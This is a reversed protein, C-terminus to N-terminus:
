HRKPRKGGSDKQAAARKMTPPSSKSGTGDQEGEGPPPAEGSSQPEMDMSAMIAAGLPPGILAQHRRVLDACEEPTVEPHYYRMAAWLLTRSTGLKAPKKAQSRAHLEAVTEIWAEGTVGEVAIWAENDMRLTWRTEGITLEAEGIM